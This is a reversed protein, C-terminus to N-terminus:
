LSHKELFEDILKNTKEPETQPLFHGAGEVIATEIVSYQEKMRELLSSNLYKEDSGHAFLFPVKEDHYKIEASYKFNARYYNIPPTM